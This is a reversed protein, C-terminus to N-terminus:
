SHTTKEISLSPVLLYHNNDTNINFYIFVIFTILKIIFSIMPFFKVHQGGDNLLSFNAMLIEKCERIELNM